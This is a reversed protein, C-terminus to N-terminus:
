GSMWGIVPKDHQYQQSMCDDALSGEKELPHGRALASTAPANQGLFASKATM